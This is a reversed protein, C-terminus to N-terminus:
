GVRFVQHVWCVFSTNHIVVGAGRTIMTVNTLCLPSELVTELFVLSCYGCVVAITSVGNGPLLGFRNVVVVVPVFSADQLSPM